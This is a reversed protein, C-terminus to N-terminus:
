YPWGEVRFVQEIAGPLEPLSFSLRARRM